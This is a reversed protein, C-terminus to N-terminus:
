CGNFLFFSDNNKWEINIALKPKSWPRLKFAGQFGNGSKNVILEYKSKKKLGVM